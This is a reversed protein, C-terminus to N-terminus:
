EGLARVVQVGRRVPCRVAVVDDDRTGATDEAADVLQPQYMLVTAGAGRHQAHLGARVHRRRHVGEAGREAFIGAVDPSRPVAATEAVVQLIGQPLERDVMPLGATEEG